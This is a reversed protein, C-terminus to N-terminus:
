ENLEGTVMYREVTPYYFALIANDPRRIIVHMDNPYSVKLRNFLDLQWQLNKSGLAGCHGRGDAFFQYGDYTYESTEM